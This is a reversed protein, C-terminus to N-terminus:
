RRVCNNTVSGTEPLNGFPCTTVELARFRRHLQERLSPTFGNRTRSVYILKGREYYGFIMADFNTASPMDV